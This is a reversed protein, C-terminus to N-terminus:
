IENDDDCEIVVKPLLSSDLCDLHARKIPFTFELKSPEESTLSK